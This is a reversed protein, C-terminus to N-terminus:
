NRSQKKRRSLWNTALLFFIAFLLPRFAPFHDFSQRRAPERWTGSGYVTQQNPSNEPGRLSSTVGLLHGNQIWPGGSDGKKFLAPNNIPQNELWRLISTITKPAHTTMGFGDVLTIFKEEWVLDGGHLRAIIVPSNERPPEHSEPIRPISDPPNQYLVLDCLDDEIREFRKDEEPTTIEPKRRPSFSALFYPHHDFLIYASVTDELIHGASVATKPGTLVALGEQIHGDTTKAHIEGVASLPPQDRQILAPSMALLLLAPWM